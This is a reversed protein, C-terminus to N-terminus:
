RVSLKQQHHFRLVRIIAGAEEGLINNGTINQSDRNRIKTIVERSTIRGILM